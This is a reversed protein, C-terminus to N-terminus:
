NSVARILAAGCQSVAEQCHYRQWVRSRPDWITRNACGNHKRAARRASPLPSPRPFNAQKRPRTPSQYRSGHKACVGRRRELREVRTKASLDGLLRAELFLRLLRRRSPLRREADQAAGPVALIEEAFQAAQARNEIGGAYCEVDGLVRFEKAVHGAAGSLTEAAVPERRHRQLEVGLLRESEVAAREIDAAKMDPAAVQGLRIQQAQLGQGANLGVPRKPEPLEPVVLFEAVFEIHFNARLADVLLEHGADAGAQKEIRRHAPSDERCDVQRAAAGSVRERAQAHAALSLDGVSQRHKSAYVAATRQWGARVAALKAVRAADAERQVRADQRDGFDLIRDIPADAGLLRIRMPRQGACVLKAGPVVAQGEVIQTIVIQTKRERAIKGTAHGRRM